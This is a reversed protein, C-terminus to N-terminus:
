CMGATDLPDKPRFLEDLAEAMPDAGDPTPPYLLDAIHYAQQFMSSLQRPTPQMAIADRYRQLAADPEGLILKAEGEADLTASMVLLRLDSRLSRQADLALALGLDADLSREHFEDFLVAGIGELTPDDLIMRTFVGETLVEIETKRSVRTELRARLGVTEGVEEGLTAAMRRAAGRAALRRPELLLIKRGERWPADLLVLPVTHRGFAEQLRRLEDKREDLVVERYPVGERELLEKARACFGCSSWTYLIARM